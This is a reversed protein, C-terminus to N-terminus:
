VECPINRNRYIENISELNLPTAYYVINCIGCSHLPENSRGFELFADEIYPAIRDKTLVLNGNIFCDLTGYNYNVVFNNWRQFLIDDTRYIVKEICSTRNRECEDITIKLEKTDYDYFIKPNNSYTMIFGRKNNSTRTQKIKTDFYVWFSIGYHYNYDQIHNTRNILNILSSAEQYIFDNKMGNYEKIKHLLDYYRNDQRLSLIYEKFKDINKFDDFSLEFKEMEEQVLSKEANTLNKLEVGYIIHKDLLHINKDFGEIERVKNLDPISTRTRELYSKFDNNKRLLNRKVFPKSNIIKDKLEKQTLYLVQKELSKAKQIFTIGKSHKALDKLIPFIYFSLIIILIIIILIHPTTPLGSVNSKVFNIFDVIYCPILFLVNKLISFMDDKMDNMDYGNSNITTSQKLSLFLIILVFSVIISTSTSHYVIFKSIHYFLSFLLFLAGIYCLNYAVKYLIELRLNSFKFGNDVKILIVSLCSFFIFLTLFISIIPYDHVLNFLKFTYLYYVSPFLIFFIIFSITMITNNVFSIKIYDILKKLPDVINNLM